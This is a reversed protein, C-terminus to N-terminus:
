GDSLVTAELFTLPFAFAQTQSFFSDPSTDGSEKKYPFFPRETLQM